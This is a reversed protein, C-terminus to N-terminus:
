LMLLNVMRKTWDSYTNNNKQDESHQRSMFRWPLKMLTNKKWRSYDGDFPGWESGGDRNMMPCMQKNTKVRRQKLGLQAQMKIRTYYHIMIVMAMMM